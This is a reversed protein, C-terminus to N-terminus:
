SMIQRMTRYGELLGRITREPTKDHRFSTDMRGMIMQPQIISHVCSYVSEYKDEQIVEDERPSYGLVEKAIEFILDEALLHDYKKFERDWVDQLVRPLESCSEDIFTGTIMWYSGVVALARLGRGELARAAVLRDQDPHVFQLPNEKTDLLIRELSEIAGNM